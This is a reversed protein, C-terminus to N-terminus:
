SLRNCWLQKQLVAINPRHITKLFQHSEALIGWIISNYLVPVLNQQINHRIGRYIYIVYMIDMPHIENGECSLTPLRHGIYHRIHYGLLCHEYASLHQPLHLLGVKLM